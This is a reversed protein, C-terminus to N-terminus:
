RAPQEHFRRMTMRRLHLAWDPVPYPEDYVVEVVGASALLKVCDACPQTTCYVTAGDLTIGRRACFSVINAEAHVCTCNALGVGAMIATDACRACGGEDCHKEGPINGNFADAFSRRDRVAVAGVSRRRCTSMTANLLARQGWHTDWDRSM